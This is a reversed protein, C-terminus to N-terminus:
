VALAHFRGGGRVAVSVDTLFMWLRLVELKGGLKGHELERLTPLEFCRVESHHLGRDCVATDSEEKSGARCSLSLRFIQWELDKQPNPNNPIPSSPSVLALAWTGNSAQKAVICRTKCTHLGSPIVEACAM